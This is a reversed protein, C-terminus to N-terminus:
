GSAYVEYETPMGLLADIQAQVGAREANSSWERWDDMSKWTSIVLTEGPRDIRRLTEGTIYGPQSMALNRMQMLLPMLQDSKTEPVQRKIIIKVVM